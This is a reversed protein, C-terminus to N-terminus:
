IPFIKGIDLGADYGACGLALSVEGPPFKSTIDHAFELTLPSHFTDQLHNESFVSRYKSWLESALQPSWITPFGSVAGCVLAFSAILVQPSINM